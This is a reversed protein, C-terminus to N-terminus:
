LVGFAKLIFVVCTGVVVVCTVSCTIIAWIPFKVKSSRNAANALSDKEIYQVPIGKEVLSRVSEALTNIKDGQKGTLSILSNISEEFALLKDMKENQVTAVEVM